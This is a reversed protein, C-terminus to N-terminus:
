ITCNLLVDWQAWRDIDCIRWIESFVNRNFNIFECYPMNRFTTSKKCKFIIRQTFSVINTLFVVPYHWDLGRGSNQQVRHLWLFYRFVSVNVNLISCKIHVYFSSNQRCHLFVSLCFFWHSHFFYIYVDCAVFILILRHPRFGSRVPMLSDIVLWYDLGIWYSCAGSRTCQAISRLCGGTSGTRLQREQKRFGLIPTQWTTLLLVSGSITHGDALNGGSRQRHNSSSVALM